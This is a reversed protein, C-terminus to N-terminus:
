MTPSQRPIKININNRYSPSPTRSNSGFMKKAGYATAGLGAAGVGAGVGAGIAHDRTFGGMLSKRNMGKGANYAGSMNSKFNNTLAGTNRTRVATGLNGTVQKGANFVGKAMSLAGSWLGAEKEIQAAAKYLNSM